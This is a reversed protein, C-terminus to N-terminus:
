KFSVNGYETRVKLTGGSGSGVRGLYRRSSDDDPDGSSRAKVNGGYRFNGYSTEVTFDAAYGASFGLDVNTYEANVNLNRCTGSINKVNLQNYSLRFNGDGKLSGISVNAYESNIVLDGAAAIQLGSGYQQTIQARDRVQGINVGAYEVDLELTGVSGIRLGSGYQQKLVARNVYVLDVGGYEVEIHNSTNELRDANLSGYQVRAQLPGSFDGISVNGFEQSLILANKAPMWVVYDVKVKSQRGRGWGRQRSIDTKCSILAGTKATTVTVGDLLGAADQNGGSSATIIVDLKVENRDWTNIVMSGYQNGLMVKDGPAAPFTRSIKRIRVPDDGAPFGSAKGQSLLCCTLFLFLLGNKM